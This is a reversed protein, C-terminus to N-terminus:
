HWELFLCVNVLVKLDAIYSEETHVLEELTKRRQLARNFSAQDIAPTAPSRDELLSTAFRHIGTVVSRAKQSSQDSSRLTKRYNHRSAPASVTALSISASNVGTVFASSTGSTSRTHGQSRQRHTPPSKQALNEIQENLAWRKERQQLIVPEKEGARRLTSMWKRFPHSKESTITEKAIPVPQTNARIHQPKQLTTVRRMGAQITHLEQRQAEQSGGHKKDSCDLEHDPTNGQSWEMSSWGSEHCMSEQVSMPPVAQNRRTGSHDESLSISSFSSASPCTNEVLTNSHGFFASKPPVELRASVSRKTSFISTDSRNRVIPLSDKWRLQPEVATPGSFSHLSM